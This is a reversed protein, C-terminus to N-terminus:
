KGKMTAILTGAAGLDTLRRTALDCLYVRRNPQREAYYRIIETDRASGLDHAKIIPADDINVVDLNYVPEEHPTDVGSKYTFLVLAPQQVKGPLDNYVWHMLSETHSRQDRVRTNLEPLTGMALGLPLIVSLVSVSAAVRPWLREALRFSAMVMLLVAPVVTLPYWPLLFPNIAYVLVFLPLTLFVVWRRDSLV